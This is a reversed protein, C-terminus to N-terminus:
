RTLLIFWMDGVSRTLVQAINDIEGKVDLQHCHHTYWWYTLCIGGDKLAGSSAGTTM